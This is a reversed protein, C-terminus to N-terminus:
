MVERLYQVRPNLKFLIKNEYFEYHIYRQLSLLFIVQTFPEAKPMASNERLIDIILLLRLFKDM